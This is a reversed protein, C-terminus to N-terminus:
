KPESPSAKVRDTKRMLARKITARSYNRGKEALKTEIEPAELDFIDNPQFHEEFDRRCRAVQSTPRVPDPRAIWPWQLPVAAKVPVSAADTEEPPQPEQRGTEERLSLASVSSSAAAFASPLLGLLRLEAVIPGANIRILTVRIKVRWFGDFFPGALNGGRGNPHSIVKILPGDYNVSSAQWDVDFQGKERSRWFFYHIAGAQQFTPIPNMGQKRWEPPMTSRPAEVTSQYRWDIRHTAFYDLLFEKAAVESRLCKSVFDLLESLLPRWDGASISNDDTTGAM